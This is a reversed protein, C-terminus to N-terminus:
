IKCNTINPIIQVTNCTDLFQIGQQNIYKIWQELDFDIDQTLYNIDIIFMDGLYNYQLGLIPDYYFNM